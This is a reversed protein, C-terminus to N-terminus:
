RKWGCLRAGTANHTLVAEVERDTLADVTRASLRIPKAIDCYSGGSTSQCAALMLLALLITFAATARAATRWTNMEGM